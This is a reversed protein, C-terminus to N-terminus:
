SLNGAIVYDLLLDRAFLFPDHYEEVVTLKNPDYYAWAPLTDYKENRKM